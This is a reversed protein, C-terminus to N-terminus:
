PILLKAGASLEQSPNLSNIEAIEDPSVRYKKAVSWLTDGSQVFYIVIPAKKVPASETTRIGEVVDVKEGCILKLSLSVAAKINIHRDDALSFSCGTMHATCEIKAEEIGDADVSQEFLIKSKTSYVPTEDDETLYLVQMDLHGKVNAKGDKLEIDDIIPSATINCIKAAPPCPEEIEATGKVTFLPQFFGAIRDVTCVKKSLEIDCVTCFCDSLVLASDRSTVDATVCLTIEVGILRGSDDTEYYVSDIKYDIDCEMGEDVNPLDLIETFPIEHEMFEPKQTEAGIYLTCVNINGKIIAKGAILKTESDCVSASINLVDEIASCSSPVELKDAVTVTFEDDAEQSFTLVEKHLTEVPEDSEIDSIFETESQRYAKLNTSVTAKISIKRSNILNYEINSIDAGAKVKMDQLVGKAECVDTFNATTHASKVSMDTMESDPVYIVTFEVDGRLVVRDPGVEKEKIRATADIQLIRQIDPYADPLIIDTETMVESGCGAVAENIKIATKKTEINM